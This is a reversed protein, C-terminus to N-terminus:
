RGVAPRPFEYTSLGGLLTEALDRDSLEDLYGRVEDVLGM